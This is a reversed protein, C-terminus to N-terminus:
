YLLLPNIWSRWLNRDRAYKPDDSFIINPLMGNQWQGRFLSLIEAMAREIDRHRLGIAIFCSDWLWQHPYLDPAPQTYATRDNLDLVHYAESLLDTPPQM